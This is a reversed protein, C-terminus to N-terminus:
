HAAGVDVLMSIQRRVSDDGGLEPFHAMAKECLHALEAKKSMTGLHGFEYYQFPPGANPGKHPDGGQALPTRVLLEAIPYLIGQMAAIGNRELAYRHSFMEVRKTGPVREKRVDTTPTEYLKDLICLMYCYAANFLTMLSGIRPNGKGHKEVTPDDVVPWIAAASDISLDKKKDGDIAGIGEIGAQIRRFKWWHTFVEDGLDPNDPDLPRRKHDQASGEGQEVIIDLAQRASKLDAVRVPKGEGFQNWFGRLYQKYVGETDWKIMNEKDLREFGLAISHYFAGLSPYEGVNEPNIAMLEFEDTALSIEDPAELDVFTGVHAKSLKKLHLPLRPSRNIMDHPYTPIFKKDYFRIDNGRGIAVMLNRVLCLHLMEEIAVGILTHLAGRQPAWQSYGKTKFSYASYLYLPITSLEVRAAVWLHDALIQVSDIPKGPRLDPLIFDRSTTQTTM